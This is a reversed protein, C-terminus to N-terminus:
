SVRKVTMGTKTVATRFKIGYDASINCATVKVVSRKHEDQHVELVEGLALNRLRQRLSTPDPQKM